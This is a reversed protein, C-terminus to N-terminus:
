VNNRTMVIWLITPSTRRARRTEDVDAIYVQNNHQPFVFFFEGDVLSSALYIVLISPSLELLNKFLTLGIGRLVEEGGCIIWFRWESNM